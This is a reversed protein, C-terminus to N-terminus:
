QWDKLNLIEVQPFDAGALVANALGYALCVVVGSKM